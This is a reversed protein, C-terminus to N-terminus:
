RSNICMISWSKVLIEGTTHKVVRLRVQGSSRGITGVVPPRDNDDTGKGRRKNARRRPLDFPDTPETGKKGRMKFCGM